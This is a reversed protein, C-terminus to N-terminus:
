DFNNQERAVPDGTLMVINHPCDTWTSILKGYETRTATCNHQVPSSSVGGCHAPTALVRGQGVTRHM